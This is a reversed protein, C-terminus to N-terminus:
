PPRRRGLSEVLELNRCTLTDLVLADSAHRTRLGTVHGLERKQTDRVFRLVAGAAGGRPM